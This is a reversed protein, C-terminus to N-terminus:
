VRAGAVGGNDSGETEEQVPESISDYLDYFGLLDQVAQRCDLIMRREREESEPDSVVKQFLRDLDRDLEKLQDLTPKEPLKYVSWDYRTNLDSIRRNAIEVYEQILLSTVQHPLSQDDSKSESGSSDGSETGFDFLGFM